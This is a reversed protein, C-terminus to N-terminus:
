FPIEDTETAPTEGPPLVGTVRIGERKLTLHVKAGPWEDTDRTLVDALADRNTRNVILGYPTEHFWLVAKDEPPSEPTSKVKEETAERVTLWTDRGYLEEFLDRNFYKVPHVKNWDVPM